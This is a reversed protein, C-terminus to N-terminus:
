DLKTDHKIPSMEKIQWQLLKILKGQENIQQELKEIKSEMITLQNHKGVGMLQLNELRNDSRVGNRHHIIEWSHLNRGLHQAMVLRHELIRGSKNNATPFFFDIQSLIICVYGGSDKYQSGVKRTTKIMACSICRKSYDGDTALRSWREKGCDECAVWIHRCLSSYGIEDGIRIEGINPM